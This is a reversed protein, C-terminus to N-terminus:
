RFLKNPNNKVQAAEACVTFTLNANQATNEGNEPFHFCVTLNRKENQLLIDDAALVSEEGLSRATGSYLVKEGDKIAIELVDSLGGSVSDFYIRYYVSCSSKNEVFFDKRVTMGSEFQFEDENIIRKGDNLNLEVTGTTFFNNEIFVSAFVLAFTTFFLCIGLTIVAIIGGTLRKATSKESM